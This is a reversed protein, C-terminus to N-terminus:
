SIKSDMWARIMSKLEPKDSVFEAIMPGHKIYAAQLTPDAHNIMWHRFELWKPNDEGYVERAVWCLIAAAGIKAAGGMFAGGLSGIMGSIGASKAANAQAQAAALGMQANYAGYISGMGTQSEPNFYQPGSLQQATQGMGQSAGVQGQLIPQKYFAQLIPAQASQLQGLAGAGLQAQGAQLMTAGQLRQQEAQGRQLAQTFQQQQTAAGLEERGLAQQFAQAQAGQQLQQQGMLQAYRQQQIDQSLAEQTQAQGFAAGQAGMAQTFRQAQTQQALLDQAKAQEFGTAQLGAAQAFRQAQTQQNLLDKAQAQQFATGQTGMAQAYRQAQLQQNLVDRAQAQGFAQAQQGLGFQIGLQQRQFADALAPQYIGQLTGAMQQAGTMRQQFRQNAVDARNLVEAAVAQPGLATGRAAYASRAAQDALRQEEATLGRGAALEEQARQSLATAIGQMGPQAAMYRDVAAQDLNQINSALQPGAVRGLNQAYPVSGALRAALAPSSIQALNQAEPVPGALETVASVPQAGAVNVAAPVTGAGAAATAAPTVAKMYGAEQPMGAGLAVNTPTFEAVKSLASGTSPGAIQGEFATLQPAQLSRQMSQQALQGASTLAQQFGPTLGGFAAQYQPLASQLQQLEAARNALNYTAEIQAVQPYLKSAQSLLQQGLFEQQQAQLQNYLPQYKAESEYVQPAMEVQAKLIERMSESYNPAAPAQVVTDGGGYSGM